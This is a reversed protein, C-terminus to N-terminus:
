EETTTGRRRIVGFALDDALRGGTIPFPETRRYDRGVLNLWNTAAKPKAFLDGEWLYSVPPIKRDTGPITKGESRILYELGDTAIGGHQIENTPRTIVMFELLQAPLTSPAVKYAIYPPANSPQTAAHGAEAEAKQRRKELEVRIDIVGGNIIFYGDGFAVFHTLEPTVVMGLITATWTDQVAKMAPLHQWQANIRIREAIESTMKFWASDDLTIGSQVYSHCLQTFWSCLLRSGVDANATSGCGDSAVLTLLDKSHHALISDQNSELAGRRHKAGATTGAAVEFTHM